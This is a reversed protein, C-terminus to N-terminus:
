NGFLPHGSGARGLERLAAEVDAPTATARGEALARWHAWRAAEAMASPSVAHGEALSRALADDCPIGERGLAERWLEARRDREPPELDVVFHFFGRSRAPGRSGDLHFYIGPRSGVLKWFLDLDAEGGPDLVALACDAPLAALLNRVAGESESKGPGPPSSDAKGASIADAACFFAGIRLEWALAAAASRLDEMPVGRLRVRLTVGRAIADRGVRVIGALRERSAASFEPMDGGAAAENSVDECFHVAQERAAELLDEQRLPRDGARLAAVHVANRIYGGAFFFRDALEQCDIGPAAKVDGELHVEWIRRREERGPLPFPVRLSARRDLARDLRHPSNTALITMGAHREIELLLTQSVFSDASFLDDCEDFFAIGQLAQAERLIFRILDGADWYTDVLRPRRRGPSPLRMRILPMGFKSSIAQALLTKGTGSPGFFLLVLPEPTRGRRRAEIWGEVAGLVQEKLRRPLVVRHEEVRPIETQLFASLFAYSADDGLLRNLTRPSLAVQTSLLDPEEAGDPGTDLALIGQAVLKGSPHFIRRLRVAEPPSAEPFLAELLFGIRVGEDSFGKLQLGERLAAFLPSVQSSYLFAVVEREPPTLGLRESLRALESTGDTELGSRLRALEAEIRELAGDDLGGGDDGRAHALLSEAVRRASPPLIGAHAPRRRLVARLLTLASWAHWGDAGSPDTGAPGQRERSM